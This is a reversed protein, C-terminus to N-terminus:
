WRIPALYYIEKGRARECLLDGDRLLQGFAERTEGISLRCEEAAKSLDTPPSLIPGFRLNVLCWAYVRILPPDSLTAGTPHGNSFLRSSSSPDEIRVLGREAWSLLKETPADVREGPLYEAGTSKIRLPKIAFAEMMRGGM